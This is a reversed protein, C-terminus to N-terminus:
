RTFVHLLVASALAGALFAISLNRYNLGRRYEVRLSKIAKIQEQLTKTAANQARVLAALTRETSEIQESLHSENKSLRADIQAAGGTLVESALSTLTSVSQALPDLATALAERIETLDVQVDVPREIVSNRLWSLEAAMAEIRDLLEQQQQPKSGGVLSLATNIKSM